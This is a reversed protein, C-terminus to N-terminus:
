VGVMSTAATRLETLAAAGRRPVARWLCCNRGKEWAEVLAWVCAGYWPWQPGWFCWWAYPYPWADAAYPLRPSYPVPAPDVLCWPPANPQYSARAWQAAEARMLHARHVHRDQAKSCELLRTSTQRNCTAGTHLPTTSTEGELMVGVQQSSVSM